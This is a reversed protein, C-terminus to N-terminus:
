IIPIVGAQNVRLPLHTSTGGQSSTSIRRASRVPTQRPAETVYVICTGAVMTTVITIIDAPSTPNLVQQNRLLVVMGISQLAALPVTLLRTYQNIKERGLDGEKQLAELKPFVMTLLQLVISANIYPALGLAMVSFNALTGGSFIDLLGLIQNSAFLQNLAVLDVGPAPVHAILRFIAFIGLTILFKKRLEPTKVANLISSFRNTM